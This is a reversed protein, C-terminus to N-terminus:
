RVIVKNSYDNITVIYPAVTLPISTRLDNIIGSAMIKGSIDTVLYSSGIEAEEIVIAGNIGYAKNKNKKVPLEINTTTNSIPFATCIIEFPKDDLTKIHLKHNGDDLGRIILQWIHEGNSGDIIVPSNNDVWVEARGFGENVPRKWYCVSAVNGAFNFILESGAKNSRWGKGTKFDWIKGGDEWVGIKQIDATVENVYSVNEMDSSILPSPLITNIVAASNPTVSKCIEWLLDAIKQHADTNPHIGDGNPNTSIAYYDSWSKSGAIIENKVKDEYNSIPIQYHQAMPIQRYGFGIGAQTCFMSTLLAPSEKSKLLKRILGEYCMLLEDSADDNAAYEFVVLDPDYKLIHEEARIDGFFSNTSGIGANIFKVNIGYTEEFHAKLRNGYCNPFNPNFPESNAGATMSGGIVAITLDKGNVAKSMLNELRSYDANKNVDPEVYGTGYEAIVRMIEIDSGSDLYVCAQNYKPEILDKPLIYRYVSGGLPIITLQDAWFKVENYGEKLAFTPHLGNPTYVDVMFSTVLTEGPVQYVMYGWDNKNTLAYRYVDGQRLSWTSNDGWITGINGIWTVKSTNDCEDYIRGNQAFASGAILALIFLLTNRKM